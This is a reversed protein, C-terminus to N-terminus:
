AEPGKPAPKKKGAPPTNEAGPITVQQSQAILATLESKPVAGLKVGLIAGGKMTVFLPIGRAPVGAKLLIGAIAQHLGPNEDVNVKGVKVTGINEDAIQDLVPAMSKCPGCWDAYFDILFLKDSKIVEDVFNKENLITINPSTM